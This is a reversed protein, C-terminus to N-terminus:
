VSGRILAWMSQTKIEQKASDFNIDANGNKFDWVRKYLLGGGAAQLIWGVSSIIGFVAALIHSQAFSSITNILGASGTSPIGITMYISFLLHFGAFLFYAYFFFAMGRGDVRRYGQYIPWYWLFFSAIGIFPVYGGAAATDAGGDSAGAILLFICGLLNVILTVALALWQYYLLRATSQHPHTILSIDHHLFPIFPPWNNPYVGAARQREEFERERRELERQKAELEAARKDHDNVYAGINQLGGSPGPRATDTSELSFASDNAHAFPNATSSPEFPNADLPQPEDFPNHHSM